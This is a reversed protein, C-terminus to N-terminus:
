KVKGKGVLRFVLTRFIPTEARVSLEDGNWVADAGAPRWMAGDLIEVSADRWSPSVRFRFTGVPDANLNLAHVFLREANANATVMVNPLGVTRVPLAEDGGLWVFCDDLLARKRANFVNRASCGALNAAMTVVRGGRANRFRTLSPQVRKDRSGSFYFSAEEAGVSKLRSVSSGDIGFNAHFSSPVVDSPAGGAVAEGTFDVRDRATAEVGVLSAFGRETLVEAAAGDLFVNGSLIKAIDADSKGDFAYHTVYATVPAPHTTVPFGLRGFALSVAQPSQLRGPACAQLEHRIRGCPDYAACLGVSRGKQAEDRIAWLRPASTRYEGLYDPFANWETQRPVWHYVGDLGYALAQSMFATMRAASAYYGSHPCIDSEYVNEIGNGVNEVSWQVAFLHSPTDLPADYGYKAGWWRVYPRHAGALARALAAIDDEPVYSPASLGVRTEPSVKAIAASAARAIALVDDQQLRHWRARLAEASPERLAQVLEERTRVVGTLAAFRKLHNECFCGGFFFRFDDEMMYLFPRSEAALAACKAAFAERFGAEGPCPTFPRVQGDPRVTSQWPHDVGANMTPMMLYGVEIGDAAVLEKVQRVRRGLERYGDVSLLGEQRVAHGPGYLVFKAIGARAKVQRLEAVVDAYSKGVDCLSWPTVTGIREPIPTGEAAASVTMLLVAACCTTRVCRRSKLSAIM